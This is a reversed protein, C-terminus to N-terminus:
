PGFVREFREIRGRAVAKAIGGTTLYTRFRAAAAAAEHRVDALYLGLNLAAEPPVGRSALSEFEASAPAPQGQVYEICAAGHRVHPEDPALDRARETRAAAADYRREAYDEEALELLAGVLIARAVADAPRIAVLAELVDAARKMDGLRYAAYGRILRADALVAELGRGEPAPGSELTTLLGDLSDWAERGPTALRAVLELGARAPIPLGERRVGVQSVRWSACRVHDRHHVRRGRNELRSLAM